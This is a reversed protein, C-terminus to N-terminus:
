ASRLEAIYLAEAISRDVKMTSRRPRTLTLTARRHLLGLAARRNATTVPRGYLDVAGHPNSLDVAGHPNSLDVAGHPNSLDVAGHNRM